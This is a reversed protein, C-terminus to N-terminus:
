VEDVIWNPCRRQGEERRVLFAAAPLGGCRMLENELRNLTQSRVSRDLNEEQLLQQAAEQFNKKYALLELCYRQRFQEKSLQILHDARRVLSTSMSLFILLVASFQLLGLMSILM